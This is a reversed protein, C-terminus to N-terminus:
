PTRPTGSGSSVRDGFGSSEWVFTVGDVETAIRVDVGELGEALRLGRERGLVSIASALADAATGDPAVVTVLRRETLGLGTRPDVIHSYRVGDIEVHRYRDGSTAVGARQVLLVEGGAGELAVVWGARHPPPRGLALDGGGEVLAREMGHEVLVELARDLAYGKAIGGLDLRVDAAALRVASRQPDLQVNRWDVSSGAAALESAEPLLGSSFARRWLKVYGGVTVDFAGDSVRSITSARGLVAYLDESVQVPRTMAEPNSRASLRSLESETDYDTLRAGLEAIRAFAADAAEAARAPDQAYLVVRFSTGMAAREFEHREQEPAACGSGYALILWALRLEM